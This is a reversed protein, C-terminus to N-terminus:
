RATVLDMRRQLRAAEAADGAQLARQRQVGLWALLPRRWGQASATDVARAVDAPTIQGTQRRVGAAVLRSFPDAVDALPQRQAPPLLARDAETAQGKLYRAYAQDAPAADAALPEFAPCDGAQLAAVRTACHHLEARALLAPQGTSRLERRVRQMEADAVRENGQLWAEAARDLSIRAAMQWDPPPPTSSCGALLAAILGAAMLGTFLRAATRTM